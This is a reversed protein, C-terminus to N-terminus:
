WAVAYESFHDLRTSVQQLWLQDLSLLLELVNLNADLYAIRKPLIKALAGCHAYGMTLTAPKNFQLGHPQFEVRNLTDSPFSATITVSSPLAGAPVALRHPGVQIVGGSAGITASATAAPLPSCKLLTGRLSWLLDSEPASAVPAAVSPATPGADRCSAAVLVLAAALLPLRFRSLNM